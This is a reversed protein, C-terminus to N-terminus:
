RADSLRERIAAVGQMTLLIRSHDMPLAQSSFKAIVVQNKRDIFVNQGFVGVGFMMPAEGRLVYWKSRYHIPMRQFYKIFDGDNWAQADGASLVDDIWRSPIIQKGAYRGDEAILLGLRALDRTTGCFGGACRPAGLRDLTIYASRGAGMPRWLLESVLDAYRKGTAREIVWGMLDTNPSVYQFRGKHPGDKEVLSALFTRLDSPKDGPALPEGNQAKRYETMRGSNALYDEDFLIGVRMDLLDRLTAGAYASTEIEPIWRTVQDEPNLADLDVLAGVLLGLVCKSVSMFIHPTDPGMPNDYFEYIIRGDRVIVLGDTDTARLLEELSYFGGETGMSFDAFASTAAGFLPRVNDPDSPIDATPMIERVHQFSWKNFPPTRWNALTVQWEGPPPSGKMMEQRMFLKETASALIEIESRKARAQSLLSKNVRL